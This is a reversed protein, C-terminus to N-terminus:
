KFCRVPGVWGSRSAKQCSIESILFISFQLFFHPSECMELDRRMMNKIHDVSYRDHIRNLGFLNNFNDYKRADYIESVILTLFKFCVAFTICM